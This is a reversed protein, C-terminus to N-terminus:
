ERKGIGTSVDAHNPRGVRARVVFLLVRHYGVIIGVGMGGTWDLVTSGARDLKNGNRKCRDIQM